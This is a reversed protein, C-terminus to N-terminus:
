SYGPRRKKKDKNGVKKSLAREGAMREWQEDEGCLDSWQDGKM